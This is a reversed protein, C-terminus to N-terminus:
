VVQFGVRQVRLGRMEVAAYVQGRRESLFRLDSEEGLGRVGCPTTIRDGIKTLKPVRSLDRREALHAKAEKM